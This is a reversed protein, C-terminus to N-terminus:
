TKITLSALNEATGCLAAYVHRKIAYIAYRLCRLPYLDSLVFSVAVNWSITLFSQCDSLMLERGINNGDRQRRQM